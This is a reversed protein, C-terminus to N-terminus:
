PLKDVQQQQYKKWMPFVEERTKGVVPVGPDDRERAGQLPLYGLEDMPSRCLRQVHNLYSADMRSRWSFM